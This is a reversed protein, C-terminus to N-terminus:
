QFREMVIAELHFSDSSGLNWLKFGSCLTSRRAWPERRCALCKSCPGANSVVVCVKASRSASSNKESMTREM